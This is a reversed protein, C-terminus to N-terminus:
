CRSRDKNQIISPSIEKHGVYFCTFKIHVKGNVSSTKMGSKNKDQQCGKTLNKIKNSMTEMDCFQIVKNKILEELLIINM